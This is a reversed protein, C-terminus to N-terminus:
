NGKMREGRAEPSKVIGGVKRETAALPGEVFARVAGPVDLLCAAVLYLDAAVLRTPDDAPGIRGALWAVFADADLALEPWASRGAEWVARLVSEREIAAM